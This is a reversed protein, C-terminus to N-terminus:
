HMTPESGVLSPGRQATQINSHATGLMATNGPTSMYTDYMSSNVTQITNGVTAICIYLDDGNTGNSLQRVAAADHGTMKTATMLTPSMVTATM